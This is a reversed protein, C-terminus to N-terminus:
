ERPSLRLLDINTVANEVIKVWLNGSTRYGPQTRLGKVVRLLFIAQKESHSFAYIAKLSKCLRFM